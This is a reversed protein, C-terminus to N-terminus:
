EDSLLYPEMGTTFEPIKGIGRTETTAPGLELLLDGEIDMM